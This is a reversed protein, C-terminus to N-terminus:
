SRQVYIFHSDLLLVVMMLCAIFTQLYWLTKIYFIICYSKGM